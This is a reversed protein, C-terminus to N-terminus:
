ITETPWICPDNLGLKGKEFSKKAESAWKYLETKAIPVSKKVIHKLCIFLEFNKNKINKINDNVAMISVPDLVPM